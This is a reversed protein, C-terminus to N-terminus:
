LSFKAVVQPLHAVAMQQKWTQSIGLLYKHEEENNGDPALWVGLMQCAEMTQLHPITVWPRDERPIHIQQQTAPWQKYKWKNHEFWFCKDPVLNSSTAKLLNATIAQENNLPVSCFVYLLTVSVTVTLSFNGCFINSTASIEHYACTQSDVFQSALGPSCMRISKAFHGVWLVCLLETSKDHLHCITQM